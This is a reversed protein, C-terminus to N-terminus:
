DGDRDDDAFLDAQGIDLSDGISQSGTEDKQKQRRREEREIWRAEAIPMAAEQARAYMAVIDRMEQDSYCEIDGRKVLYPKRAIEEGVQQEPFILVEAPSHRYDGYSFLGSELMTMWMKLQSDALKLDKWGCLVVPVQKGNEIVTFTPATPVNIDRSVLYQGHYSDICRLSSYFRANDYEFFAKVFAANHPRGAPAGSKEVAALATPLDLGLRVRDVCMKMGSVYNFSPISLAFNAVNSITKVEDEVDILRVLNQVAPPKKIKRKISEFKM